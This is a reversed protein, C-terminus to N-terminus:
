VGGVLECLALEGPLERRFEDDVMQVWSGGGAAAVEEARVTPVPQLQVRM